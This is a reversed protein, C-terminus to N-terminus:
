EAAQERKGALAAAVAQRKRAATRRGRLWMQVGTWALLVPILGLLCVVIEGALGFASGDHLSFLWLEGVQQPSQTEASESLTVTGCDFDADVRLDGFITDTDGGARFAFQWERFSEDHAYIATLRAGPVVAQAKALAADFGMPGTCGTPSAPNAEAAEHLEEEGPGPLLDVVPQLWEHQVLYLGTVTLVLVAVLSWFGFWDHMLSARTFTLRWPRPSLKAALRRRPPWWLYLGILLMAVSGIAMIGSIVRGTAGAWIDRHFLIPAYAPSHDIDVTGLVEGTAPELLVALFGMNGFGGPPLGAFFAMGARSENHSVHPLLIGFPGSLDPAAARANEVWADLSGIEPSMDDPIMHGHAWDFFLPQFLLLSGSVSIAAFLLGVTLGIWRHLWRLTHRLRNGGGGAM